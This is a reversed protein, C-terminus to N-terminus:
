AASAAIRRIFRDFVPDRYVRDTFDFYDMLYYALDVEDYGGNEFLLRMSSYCVDCIACICSRGSFMEFLVDELAVCLFKIFDCDYSCPDYDRNSRALKLLIRPFCEKAFKHRLDLSKAFLASVDDLRLQASSSALCWPNFDNFDSDLCNDGAWFWGDAASDLHKLDLLEESELPFRFEMLVIVADIKHNSAYSILNYLMDPTMGTPINGLV